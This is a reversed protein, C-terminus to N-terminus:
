GRPVLSDARIGAIDRHPPFSNHHPQISVSSNHQTLVLKAFGVSDDGQQGTIVPQDTRHGFPHPAGAAFEARSQLRERV